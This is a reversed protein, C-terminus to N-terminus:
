IKMRGASVRFLAPKGVVNASAVVQPTGTQALLATKIGKPEPKFSDGAGPKGKGSNLSIYPERKKLKGLDSGIEGSGHLVVILPLNVGDDPQYLIYKFKGYSNDTLM